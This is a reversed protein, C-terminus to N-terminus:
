PLDDVPHEVPSQRLRGIPRALGEGVEISV